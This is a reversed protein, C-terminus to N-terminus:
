RKGTRRPDREEVYEFTVKDEGRYRGRLIYWHHDRKGDTRPSGRNFFLLMGGGELFSRDLSLEAGDNPGRLLTLKVTGM